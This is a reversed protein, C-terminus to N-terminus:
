RSSEVPKRVEIIIRGAGSSIEYRDLVRLALADMQESVREAIRKQAHAIEDAAIREVAERLALGIAQVIHDPQMVDTTLAM